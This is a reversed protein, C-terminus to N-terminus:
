NNKLQNIQKTLENFRADLIPYQSDKVTMFSLKGLVEQRETELKLLLEKQEDVQSPMEKFQKHIGDEKIELSSNTTKELFYRDHSVILLTGNYSSLTAELQERSPLDLHNTPEDLILVDKEELIYAMLKCKVREGMSMKLIPEKWAATEFGLHKMLNQVKGREEFTPRYFLEEPTKALPLDFVEQTLYGINASPSIWVEGGEAKTKGMLIKLLTTKGSGNPGILAVKEGAQITFSVDKFLLRNNVTKQLKKVELLRKGHKDNAKLTFQVEYEPKVAEVNSHELEQELRKRKSKIQADTRKAKVRHYEKFGEQKTSAAHAKQSWATLENLQGEITEIKQQQKEYARQQTLRRHERAKMYSTYNGDHEILKRDELSWIKTAVEDLFYRDHSVLIVSGQYHKIYEVLIKTSQEDLHNTPEDLLLLQANRSLGKALRAKLREGGSLNQYHNPPVKWKALMSAEVAEDHKATFDETEQEVMEITTNQQLWNIKGNSLPLNGNILQLLTSKGAGNKGIIGIVDGSHVTGNVNKFLMYDAIEYNLDQLKLLEQM